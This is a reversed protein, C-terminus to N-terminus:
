DEAMPNIIINPSVGHGSFHNKKVSSKHDPVNLPKDSPRGGSMLLPQHHPLHQKHHVGLQQLRAWRRRQQQRIELM